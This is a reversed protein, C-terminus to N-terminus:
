KKLRIGKEELVILRQKYLNGIAKKFAKKSMGVKEYILEPASKDTLALYGEEKEIIALLDKAAGVIHKQYGQVQLTIDLRGDERVKKVYAKMKDGMNIETFVENHYVVGWFKQNVVVRYGLDSVGSVFIEVEQNDVLGESKDELWRGIRSSAAIRDTADDLYLYVLYYEGAKMPDKQERFPVFLDKMLGWDMFAGFESMSTVQLFAFEGVQAAPKETTAIIRDESDCYIFVELEDGEKLGEPEYRKPLLIEGYPGGDLYAGFDLFKVVELTAYNGIKIM